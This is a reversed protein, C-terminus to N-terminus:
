HLYYPHPTPPPKPASISLIDQVPSLDLPPSRARAHLLTLARSSSLPTPVCQGMTLEQHKAVSPHLSFSQLAICLHSLAESPILDAPSSSSSTYFLISPPLCRPSLFPETPPRFLPLTFFFAIKNILACWSRSIITRFERERGREGGWM